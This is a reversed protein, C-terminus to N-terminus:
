STSVAETNGPQEKWPPEETPVCKSTWQQRRGLCLRDKNLVAPEEHGSYPCCATNYSAGSQLNCLPDVFVTVPYFLAVSWTSAIGAYALECTWVWTGSRWNNIASLVLCHPMDQPGNLTKWLVMSAFSHWCRVFTTRSGYNSQVTLPAVWSYM